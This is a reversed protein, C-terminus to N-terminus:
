NKKKNDDNFNIIKKGAQKNILQALQYKTYQKAVDGMANTAGNGLSKMVDSLFQRGRSKTQNARPTVLEMYRKELQLRNIAAILEQDSMVKAKANQENQYDNVKKSKPNKMKKQGYKIEHLEEKYQKKQAKYEAKRNAKEVAKRRHNELKDLKQAIREEAKRTKRTVKASLSNGRMKAQKPGDTGHHYPDEGSGWPYRGSKRPIGYHSLEAM